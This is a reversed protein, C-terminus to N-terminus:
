LMDKVLHRIMNVMVQSSIFVQDLPKYKKEAYERLKKLIDNQSGGEVMDVKFGFNKKLEEAIMRGDNVPNVLDPWNDYDNTVFLVAYDTRDLKAADALATSGVTVTRYSVTRTGDENEAIIEIVNSGDMLTLNKDIINKHKELDTTPHIAMM